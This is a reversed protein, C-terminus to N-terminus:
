ISLCYNEFLFLYKMTSITLLIIKYNEKMRKRRGWMGNGKKEWHSKKGGKQDNARIMMSQKDRLIYSIIIIVVILFM